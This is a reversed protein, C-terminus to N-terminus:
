SQLWSLAREKEASFICIHFRPFFVLLVIFVNAPYEFFIVAHIILPADPSPVTWYDGWQECRCSM